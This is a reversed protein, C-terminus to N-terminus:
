THVGMCCDIHSFVRACGRAAPFGGRERSGPRGRDACNGGGGRKKAKKAECAKSKAGTVAEAEGGGKAGEDCRLVDVFGGDEDESKSSSGRDSGSM